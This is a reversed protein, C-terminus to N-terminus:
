ILLSNTLLVAIFLNLSSGLTGCNGTKGGWFGLINGGLFGFTTGFFFRRTTGLLFGFIKDLYCSLLM